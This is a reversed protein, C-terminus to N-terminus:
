RGLVRRVAAAIRARFAPELIRDQRVEIEVAKRGHARAHRDAAYILGQKGSYPENLRTDAFAGLADALEHALAEDEDFLVGIEFNRASGEYRPTFSHVAFIVEAAPAAAARDVARHYAEWYALRWAHDHADVALNLHIGRGEAEQRILTESGLPRNPDILLRSFRALVVPAALLTAVERALTAAGIDYAWHTDVLWHDDTSWGWREPLRRAAHECTVVVPSTPGGDIVEVADGVAPPVQAESTRM